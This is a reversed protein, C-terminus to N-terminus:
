LIIIGGFCNLIFTMKSALDAAFVTQVVKVGGRLITFYFLRVVPLSKRHPIQWHREFIELEELVCSEQFFLQCWLKQFSFRWFIKQADFFSINPITQFASEWLKVGILAVNAPYVLM